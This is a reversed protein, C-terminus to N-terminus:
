LWGRYSYCAALLFCFNAAITFV